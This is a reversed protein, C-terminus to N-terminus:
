ILKLMKLEQRCYACNKNIENIKVYCNYCYNHHCKTIIESKEYCICCDIEIIQNILIIVKNKYKNLLLESTDKIDNYINDCLDIQYLKFLNQYKYVLDWKNLKFKKNQKYIGFMIALHYYENYKLKNKEIYNYYNCLLEIGDKYGNNLAMELYYKISDCDNHVSIFDYYYKGLLYMAESNNHFIAMQYYTLMMNFYEINNKKRAAIINSSHSFKFVTNCKSWFLCSYKLEKELEKKNIQKKYYNAVLIMSQVDGNDADNIMDLEKKRQMLQTSKSM